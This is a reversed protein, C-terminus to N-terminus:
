NLVDIIKMSIQKLVNIATDYDPALDLDFVMNEIFDQYRERWLPKTRLLDLSRNIEEAPNAAYEPNQNKVQQADNLVIEKALILFIM